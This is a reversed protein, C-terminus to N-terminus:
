SSLADAEPASPRLNSDKRARWLWGQQTPKKAERLTRPLCDRGEASRKQRSDKRARWMPFVWSNSPNQIRPNIPAEM